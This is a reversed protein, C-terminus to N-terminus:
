SYQRGVLAPNLKGLPGKKSHAGINKLSHARFLICLLNIICFEQKQGSFKDFSRKLGTAQFRLTLGQLPWIKNFEASNAEYM